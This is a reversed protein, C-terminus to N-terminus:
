DHLPLSLVIRNRADCRMYSVSLSLRQIILLGAGGIRDEEPASAEIVARATDFAPLADAYYLRMESGKREVAIEVGGCGSDEGGHLLSNAYLEDLVLRARLTTPSGCGLELLQGELWAMAASMGDRDCTFTRTPPWQFDVIGRQVSTLSRYM